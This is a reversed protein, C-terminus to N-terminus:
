QNTLAKKLEGAAAKLDAAAGKLESGKQDQAGFQSRQIDDARSGSGQGRRTNEIQTQREIEAARSDEGTKGLADQRAAAAAAGMLSPGGTGTEGEPQVGPRQAAENAIRAKEIQDVLSQSEGVDATRGPHGGAAWKAGWTDRLPTEDDSSRSGRGGGGGGSGRGVGILRGQDDYEGVGTDEPAVGFDRRTRKEKKPNLFEDAAEHGAQTIDKARQHHDALTKESDATAKKIKDITDGEGLSKGAGKFDGSALKGLISGLQSAKSIAIDFAASFTTAIASGVGKAEEAFALIQATMEAVDHQFNAAISGLGTGVGITVTQKLKRFEDDAEKLREIDIDDIVEGFKIM